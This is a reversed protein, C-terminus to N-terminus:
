KSSIWDLVIQMVEERRSIYKEEGDVLVKEHLWHECGPLVRYTMNSKGLRLFELMIYDTQLIPANRDASASVYLIPIELKVLHDLPIDSCFSSWRRYPHGYWSKETGNPDAYIQEYVNFLSDIASQAETHTIKGAAADIRNNIISSYFQNLGGSIICAIHTIKENKVALRPVIRGGESAGLAIVKNGSIQLTSYLADIVVSSADVQWEMGSKRIYEDTPQYNELIELPKIADVTVTDCFPTGPRGVCAVHFENSFASIWDPPMTGIQMSEEGSQAVIMTPLGGCGIVVFLLPKEQDLGDKSVYYYIDGLEEDEMYHQELGWDGPTTGQAYVNQFICLSFFLILYKMM